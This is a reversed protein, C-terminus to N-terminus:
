DKARRVHAGLVAMGLQRYALSKRDLNIQFMELLEDLEIRVHTIDGKALATAASPLQDALLEERKFVERDSLGAEPLPGVSFPTRFEVGAATLQKAVAQFVM